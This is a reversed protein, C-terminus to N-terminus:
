LERIPKTRFGAGTFRFGVCGLGEGGCGFAEPSLFQFVAQNYPHNDFNRDRKPDRKKM